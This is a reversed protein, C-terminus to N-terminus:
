TGPVTTLLRDEVPSGGIEDGGRIRTAVADKRGDVVRSGKGDKPGNEEELREDERRGNGEPGAVNEGSDEGDVDVVVEMREVNLEKVVETCVEKAAGLGTVMTWVIVAEGKTSVETTEMTRV